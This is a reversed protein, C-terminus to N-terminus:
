GARRVGKRKAKRARQVAKGGRRRAEASLRTPALQKWLKKTGPNMREVGLARRWRAVTYRTVGMAQAVEKADFLRVAEVLTGCLM